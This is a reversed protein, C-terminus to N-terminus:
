QEDGNVFNKESIVIGNEDWETVLGDEKGNKYNRETKKKGNEYVRHSSWTAKWRKFDARFGEARKRAM